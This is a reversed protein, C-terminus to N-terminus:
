KEVGLKVSRVAGARTGTLEEIYECMEAQEQGPLNVESLEISKEFLAVEEDTLEVVFEVTYIGQAM